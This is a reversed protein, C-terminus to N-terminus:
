KLNNPHAASEGKFNTIKVGTANETAVPSTFSAPLNTAWTVSCHDLSINDAFRINFGDTAHSEIPALAKTPRNDYVAGPYKTWRSLSVAVDELKVNQIRSSASGNIRVSNEAKGTVNEVTM